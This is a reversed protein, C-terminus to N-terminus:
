IPEENDFVWSALVRHLDAQGSFGAQSRMWPNGPEKIWNVAKLKDVHSKMTTDFNGGYLVERNTADVVIDRGLRSIAAVGVLEKLRYEPTVMVIEGNEDTVTNGDEDSLEVETDNWAVGCAISVARWYDKAVAEPSRGAKVVRAMTDTPFLQSTSRRLGEFTVPQDSKRAGSMNVDGQWVSDPDRSLSVAIARIQQAYSGTGPETIDAKTTEILAKPLKQATTNIVNFLEAEQVITLGFYMILPVQPDYSPDKANATTHGLMRHQGDVVSVVAINWRKKIQTFEGASFLKEFEKCEAPDTIRVSVTIPTPRAVPGSKLYFRAIEEGRKSIPDRQYGHHGPAPSAPDADSFKSVFLISDM